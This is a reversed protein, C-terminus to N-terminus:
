LRARKEMTKEVPPLERELKEVMDRRRAEEAWANHRFLNLAYAMADAMHDNHNNM